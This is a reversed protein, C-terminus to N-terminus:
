LTGKRCRVTGCGYWATIPSLRTSTGAGERPQVEGRALAADLEHVSVPWSQERESASPSVSTTATGTPSCSRRFMPSLPGDRSRLRCCASIAPCARVVITM